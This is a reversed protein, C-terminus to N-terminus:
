WKIKETSENGVNDNNKGYKNSFCNNINKNNGVSTKNNNIYKKYINQLIYNYYIAM